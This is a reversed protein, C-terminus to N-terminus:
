NRCGICRHIVRKIATTGKLVWYRKRLAALTHYVGMHGEVQHYYRIILETIPHKSPLIIPHKQEMPLDSSSLRGGVRILNDIIIPRLKNIVHNKSTINDSHKHRKIWHSIEAFERGQVYELLNREANDLENLTLPGSENTKNHLYRKFRTFWATCQKLKIWSSFYSIFKDLPLVATMTNLITVNKLELEVPLKLIEKWRYEPWKNRDTTLFEPGSLWVKIYNPDYKCIGRSALDAPNISSPVYRWQSPRTREHIFNIRNAVYTKFRSTTNLIYNLVIMSDTWFYIETLDKLKIEEVIQKMLKVSLVAAQLELRPISVFKLPTIRSKGLIFSCRTVNPDYQLRMYAVAGYGSESADSFLHLSIQGKNYSEVNLCRPIRLSRVGAIGELWTEWSSRLEEDIMEDWGYNKRCLQQLIRKPTLSLPVLFGLPDYLSSACSLIGRRTTPREPLNVDFAFM